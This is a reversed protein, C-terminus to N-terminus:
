GHHKAAQRRHRAKYLPCSVVSTVSHDHPLGKAKCNSCQTKNPCLAKLHGNIGCNKCVSVGRKCEFSRHGLDYCRFCSLVNEMVRVKHRTWGIYLMRQRTWEEALRDPVELVLNGTPGSTAGRSVVHVSAGFADRPMLGEVNKKFIEEMAEGTPLESPVDFVIVRPQPEKAKELTLGAAKVATSSRLVELEALSCTELRVGSQVPRISKVRIPVQRGVDGMLRTQLAEPTETAVGSKVIVAYSIPRSRSRAPTQKRQPMPSPGPANETAKKAGRSRSRRGPTGKTQPGTMLSRVLIDQYEGAIKLAETLDDAKLKCKTILHSQLKNTVLRMEGVSDSEPPSATVRVQPIADPRPM